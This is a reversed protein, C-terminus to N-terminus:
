NFRQLAEKAKEDGKDAAKKYYKKAEEINRTTGIGKKYMSAVNSEAIIQGKDAAKLFWNFAEANDKVTGQGNLYLVGLNNMAATNGKEAAQKYWKIAEAYNQPVGTGNVYLLAVDFMAAAHDKEAAKKFWNMAEAYNQAIGEGKKYILGIRYMGVAYGKNAAQQYWKIAENVSKPTGSGEEYMRGLIFTSERHDKEAAQKYWKFAEVLNKTIDYSGFEYIGGLRYMANVYGKGASQKLLSMAEATEKKKFINTAKDYEAVGPLAAYKIDEELKELAKKAPEYGKDSSKQYWLKAEQLNRELDEYRNHYLIGLNYMATENGKDAAKKYWNAAETYNQTTGQGNASMVGMNIMANVHGREAAKKYWSIEETYNQTLGHGGTGYMEGINYLANTNGKDAIKKYWKLAETYNLNVGEGKKHMWGLYTIGNENNKEAAKQFWEKGKDADQSVGQGMTYMYGIAYMATTNDKVASQQYWNIAESYNKAQTAEYGKRYELIGNQNVNVVNTSSVINNGKNSWPQGPVPVGSPYTTERNADRQALKKIADKQQQNFTGLLDNLAFPKRTTLVARYAAYFDVTILASIKEKVKALATAQNMGGSILAASYERVALGRYESPNVSSNANALMRNYNDEVSLKKAMELDESSLTATTSSKDVSKDTTKTAITEGWKKGSPDTYFYKNGQKVYYTGYSSSTFLLDYICPVIEKGNIDVVGKKGNAEVVFVGNQFKMVMDYKPAITENGIKDVFGTKKNLKTVILGKAENSLYATEYKPQVTIQGAANKIGYKGNQYFVSAQGMALSVNFLLAIITLNSITKGM